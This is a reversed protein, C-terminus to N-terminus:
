TDIDTLSKYIGVIPGGIYSYQTQPGITRIYLDSVSVHSYFNSDLGRLKMEPFLQKSNESCQKCEYNKLSAQIRVRLATPIPRAGLTSVWEGVAM